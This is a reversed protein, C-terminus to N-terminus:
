KLLNFKMSSTTNINREKDISSYLLPSEDEINLQDCFECPLGSLDGSRHKERLEEYPKDKLIEEISKNHANGLIIENDTLFCCAIVTGDWEIQAPGTFPRDCTKRKRNLKRYHKKGGWGHPVWIEIDDVLGEWYDRIRSVKEGSMPIATLSVKRDPFFEEKIAFTSHLNRTVKEWRLNRHIKEYNEKNIAHISFRIHTLGANFLKIARETDCLSGNTTIFTDLGLDTCYQIKAELDLDLLSEGFGFPSILEAGMEKAQKVLSKFFETGMTGSRRTMINHSCMVCNAQCLNCVEIRVEPNILKM